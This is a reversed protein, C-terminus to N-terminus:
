TSSEPASQLLRFRIQLVEMIVHKNEIEQLMEMIVHKYGAAPTGGHIRMYPPQRHLSYTRRLNFTYTHIHFAM